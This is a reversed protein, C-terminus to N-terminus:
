VKEWPCVFVVSGDSQFEMRSQNPDLLSNYRRRKEKSRPLGALIEEALRELLCFQINRAAELITEYTQSSLVSIGEKVAIHGNRHKSKEVLEILDMLKIQATKYAWINQYWAIGPKRIRAIIKVNQEEGFELILDSQFLYSNEDAYNYIVVKSNGVYNKSLNRLWQLLQLRGQSPGITRISGGVRYM